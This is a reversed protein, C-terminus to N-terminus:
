IAKEVEKQESKWKKNLGKSGLENLSCKLAFLLFSRESYYASKTISDQLLYGQSSLIFTM